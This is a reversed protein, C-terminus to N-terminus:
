VSIVYWNYIGIRIPSPSSPQPDITESFGTSVWRKVAERFLLPVSNNEIIGVLRQLTAAKSRINPWECQLSTSLEFRQNTFRLVEKGRLTVYNQDASVEASRDFVSWLIYGLLKLEEINEAGYSEVYYALKNQTTDVFYHGVQNNILCPPAEGEPLSTIELVGKGRMREIFRESFNSVAGGNLGDIAIFGDHQIPIRLIDPYSFPSEDSVLNVARAGNRIVSVVNQIYPRLQDYSIRTPLANPVNFVELNGSGLLLANQDAVAGPTPMSIKGALSNNVALHLSNEAPAPTVDGSLANLARQLFGEDYVPFYFPRYQSDGATSTRLMIPGVQKWGSRLDDFNVQAITPIVFFLKDLLKMWLIRSPNWLNQSQLKQKFGRLLERAQTGVHTDRTENNAQELEAFHNSLANAGGFVLADPDTGGIVRGQRDTLVNLYRLENPTALNFVRLDFAQLYVHGYIIGEVLTWFQALSRLGHIPLDRQYRDVEQLLATKFEIRRAQADPTRAVIDGGGVAGGLAVLQRYDLKRIAFGQGGGAQPQVVDGPLFVTSM